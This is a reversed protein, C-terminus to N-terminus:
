NKGEASIFSRVQDIWSEHYNLYHDPSVGKLEYPLFKRYLRSTLIVTFGSSPLTYTSNKIEYAMAGSTRDGFTTVNEHGQLKVAFHEANSNTKHGVILYVKNTVLYKKLLTLILDSNRDGGGGNGRLDVILHPKNLKGELGSYFTEAESLIPYFSKFSGLKLYDTDPALEEFLYTEEPHPTRLYMKRGIDKQLNLGLMVGNHMRETYTIYRRTTYLGGYGRLYGDGYPIYNYLIDGRNWIDSTNNLIIAQYIGEEEFHVIGLEFGIQNKYIGEVAEYPKNKLASSLSDLNMPSKPYEPLDINLSDVEKGFVRAHGDQLSLLLRTIKEFCAYFSIDNGSSKSIQELENLYSKKNNKFAPTKKIRKDLFAIDSKCNCTRDQGKTSFTIGLVLVTLLAINKTM